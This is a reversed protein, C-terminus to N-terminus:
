VAREEAWNCSACTRFEVSRDAHAPLRGECGCPRWPEWAHGLERCAQTAACDPCQLAHGAAIWWGCESITEIAAEVTEFLREMDDDDTFLHQCDGCRAQIYTVREFGGTTVPQESM